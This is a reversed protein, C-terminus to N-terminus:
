GFFAIIKCYDSDNIIIGTYDIEEKTSRIIKAIRQYIICMKCTLKYGKRKAIICSTEGVKVSCKLINLETIIENLRNNLESVVALCQLKKIENLM